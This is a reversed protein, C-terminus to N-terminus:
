RWSVFFGLVKRIYGRLGNRLRHFLPPDHSEEPQLETSPRAVDEQSIKEPSEPIFPRLGDCKTSSSTEESASAVSEVQGSPLMLGNWGAAAEGLHAVVEGAKPRLEMKGDWCRQTFAWLSDSFGIASANEPETPREGHLVSYGLAAIGM